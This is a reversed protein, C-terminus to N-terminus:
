SLLPSFENSPMCMSTLRSVPRSGLRTNRRSKPTVWKAVVDEVQLHRTEPLFAYLIVFCFLECAFIIVWSWGHIKDHTPPFCLAQIVIFVTSSLYCISTTM